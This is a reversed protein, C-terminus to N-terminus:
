CSKGELVTVVDALLQRDCGARVRLRHGNALRIDIVSATSPTAEVLTVPVFAPQQCSAAAASEASARDRKAIERRWFYFASERLERELCYDRVTLGSAQQRMFHRRWSRELKADRVNGQAM